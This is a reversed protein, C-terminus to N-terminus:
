HLTKNIQQQKRTLRVNTLWPLIRDNVVNAKSSHLFDDRRADANCKVRTHKFFNRLGQVFLLGAFVFVIKRKLRAFAIEM